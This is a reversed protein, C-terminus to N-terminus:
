PRQLSLIPILHLKITNMHRIINLWLFLLKCLIVSVNANLGGYLFIDDKLLNEVHAKLENSKGSYPGSLQYHGGVSSICFRRLQSPNPIREM